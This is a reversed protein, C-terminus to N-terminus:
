RRSRDRGATLAATASPARAPCRVRRIRFRLETWGAEPRRTLGGKTPPHEQWGAEVVDRECKLDLSSGAIHERLALAVERAQQRDGVTDLEGLVEVARRPAAAPTRRPRTLARWLLHVVQECELQNVPM